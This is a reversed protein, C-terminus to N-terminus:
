EKKLRYKERAKQNLMERNNERYVRSKQNLMDKNKQNYERHKENLENKNKERYVRMYEKQYEAKPRGAVRMNVCNNKRIYEGEKKALEEKNDCPFRELLEIRVDNYKEFLIKSNSANSSYKHAAKRKCLLNTTSGIYIDDGEPSWLKYIKANQYDPM